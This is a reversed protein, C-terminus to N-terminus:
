GHAAVRLVGYKLLWMVAFWGRAEIPAIAVADRVRTPTLCGAHIAALLVPDLLAAIDSYASRHRRGAGDGAHRGALPLRDPLRPLDRRPLARWRHDRRAGAAVRPAPRGRRARRRLRGRARGM